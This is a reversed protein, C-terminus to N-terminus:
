GNGNREAVLKQRVDESKYYATKYMKLTAEVGAKEEVLQANEKQLESNELELWNIKRQQKESKEELTQKESLIDCFSDDQIERRKDQAAIVLGAMVLLAFLSIIIWIEPTM